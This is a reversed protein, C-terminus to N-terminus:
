LSCPDEDVQPVIKRFAVLLGLVFVCRLLGDSVQNAICLADEVGVHVAIMNFQELIHRISNLLVDARKRVFNYHGLIVVHGVGLGQLFVAILAQLFQLRELSVPFPARNDNLIDRDRRELDAM